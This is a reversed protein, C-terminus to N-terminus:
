KAGRGGVEARTPAPLHELEQLLRAEQGPKAQVRAIMTLPESM